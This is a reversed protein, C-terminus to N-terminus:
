DYGGKHPVRYKKRPGGPHDYDSAFAKRMVRGSEMDRFFAAQDVFTRNEQRLLYEWCEACMPEGSERYPSVTKRGCRSCDYVVCSM